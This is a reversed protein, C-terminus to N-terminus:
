RKEDERKLAPPIDAHSSDYQADFARAVVDSHLDSLADAGTDQAQAPAEGELLGPLSAKANLRDFACNIAKYLPRAIEPYDDMLAHVPAPDAALVDSTDEPTVSTTIPLMGADSSAEVDAMIQRALAQAAPTPLWVRPSLNMKAYHKVLESYRDEGTPNTM